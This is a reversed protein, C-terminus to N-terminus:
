AVRPLAASWFIVEELTDLWLLSLMQWGSM